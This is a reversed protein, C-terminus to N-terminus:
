QKGAQRELQAGTKEALSDLFMYRFDLFDRWKSVTVRVEAGDGDTVDVYVADNIGNTSHVVTKIDKIDRYEVLLRARPAYLFDELLYFTKFFCESARLQDELIMFDRDSLRELLARRKEAAKKKKNVSKREIWFVGVNLAAIIALVAAAAGISEGDALAAAAMFLVLIDLLAFLIVVVVFGATGGSLGGKLRRYISCKECERKGTGASM